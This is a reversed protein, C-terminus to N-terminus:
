SQNRFVWLNMVIFTIVPVVLIAGAIGYLPQLMLWRTAVHMALVSALLGLVFSLCFRLFEPSIHGGSRFTLRRHGVFSLPLVALYGIMVAVTETITFLKLALLTVAGFALGSAAGTVAFRLLKATLPHHRLRDLASLM